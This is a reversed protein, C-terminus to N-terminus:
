FLGKFQNLLVLQLTNAPGKSPYIVLGEFSFPVIEHRNILDQKTPFVHICSNESSGKREKLMFSSKTVSLSTGYSLVDMFYLNQQLLKQKETKYM